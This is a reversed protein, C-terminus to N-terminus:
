AFVGGGYLIAVRKGCNPCLFWPRGGGFNCPTWTVHVSYRMDEWEGNRGRAKYSLVLRSGETSIPISAQEKGNASWALSYTNGQALGGQTHLKRIDLKLLYDDTTNRANHQKHSGSGFGGM